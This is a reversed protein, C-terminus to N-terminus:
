MNMRKTNPRGKPPFPYVVTDNTLDPDEDFFVVDREGCWKEIYESAAHTAILCDHQAAEEKTMSPAFQTFSPQNYHVPCHYTTWIGVSADKGLLKTANVYTEDALKATPVLTLVRKRDEPDAWLVSKIAKVFGTSKGLGTDATYFAVATSQTLKERVVEAIDSHVQLTPKSFEILDLPKQQELEVWPLDEGRELSYYMVMAEQELPTAFSDYFMQQVGVPAVLPIKQGEYYSM